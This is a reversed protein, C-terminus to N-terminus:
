NGRVKRAIRDAVSLDERRDKGWFAFAVMGPGVHSGIVPGIVSEIFIPKHGDKELFDRLKALDKQCDANGTVVYPAANEDVRDEFYQVLQKLGKKRGRAMGRVGLSGDAGINLIPKVDLKSGVVAVSSPIRGGHHLTHLDEVMFYVNVFHRAEEAWAVMQSATLGKDMQRIAEFVLLGEAVSAQLTDVVYLEFEPYKEITQAAVLCAQDYSASLASAFSLYVTPIGSLAAREFVETLSAISAQATSPMSGKRMREYFQHPDTSTWMDDLHEEGDLFYPFEILMVDERDIIDRPLDCCSDVILQCKKEM